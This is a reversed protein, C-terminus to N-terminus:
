GPAVAAPVPQAAPLTATFCSGEGVVSEVTLRGGMLQLLRQTIVLGIGTGEIGSREIGLRNFPEFLHEQQAASLGIGSDEVQLHVQGRDDTPWRVTVSGGPRNYKIANSLLNVLVQRVRLRDARVCTAVPALDHASRDVSVTVGAESASMAVMALAEHIVAHVPVVDPMLSIGGGEIRSLDLVDNIMGLLHAGAQSIHQVRARQSPSLPQATDLALLQAFGLVANLPTRLEHSMRSLFQTKAANARLAAQAALETEEARKRGTADIILGRLLRRGGDVPVVTVLSSMWLVRGDHAMFRYEISHPVGAQQTAIIEQVARDRDDPHVHSPWFDPQLWQATPYGTIFEAKESVYTFRRQELDAEWFIGDVSNVLDLFRQQSSRLAEDAAIRASIDEAVIILYDATGDPKRVVTVNANVWVAHGDAHLYRCTARHEGQEGMLLRRRRDLEGPLDDPHIVQDTRFSLLEERTRGLMDCMRRNVMRPRGTMALQVIGVGALDFITQLQVQQDRVAQEAAARAREARVAGMITAVSSFLPQLHDVLAHDYGGPRNALGLMGVMEGGHFLPVGLFSHM